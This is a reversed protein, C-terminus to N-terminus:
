NSYSLIVNASNEPETAKHLLSDMWRLGLLKSIIVIDFLEKFYLNVGARLVRAKRESSQLLAM